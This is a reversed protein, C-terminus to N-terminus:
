ISCNLCMMWIHGSVIVLEDMEETAPTQEVFFNAFFQTVSIAQFCLLSLETFGGTKRVALM